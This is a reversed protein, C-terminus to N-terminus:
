TKTGRQRTSKAFLIFESLFDFILFIFFDQNIYLYANRM